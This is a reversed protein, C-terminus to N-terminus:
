FEIHIILDVVLVSIYLSAGVRLMASVVRVSWKLRDNLFSGFWFRGSGVKFDHAFFVWIHYMNSSIYGWFEHYENSWHTHVIAHMSLHADTHLLFCKKAFTHKLLHWFTLSYSWRVTWLEIIRQWFWGFGSITLFRGSPEASGVRRHM